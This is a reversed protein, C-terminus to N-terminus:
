GMSREIMRAIETRSMTTNPNSELYEDVMKNIQRENKGRVISKGLIYGAVSPTYMAVKKLESEILNSTRISKMSKDYYKSIEEKTLKKVDQVSVKGKSNFTIIPNRTKYGSFKVDNIDKIANYGKSSLKNFFKDTLPQMEPTHDVLAINFLEYVDKDVIGKKLKDVSRAAKSSFKAGLRRSVNDPDMYKTVAKAFEPDNKIIDQLIKKANNPSVMKIDSLVKIDKSYAGGKSADLFAGFLGKYKIKDLKNKSSYFADRVGISGDDTIHQLSTGAKITKDMFENSIKYGAYAGALTLTTAAAAAILKKTRINKYAAVAAEDDNLGKQKYKEEMKLQQKSKPKSNIKELLKVRSLDEKAYRLERIASKVAKKDRRDVNKLDKERAEVISKSNAVNVSVKREKRVGWKMGKVGFHLIYEEYTM